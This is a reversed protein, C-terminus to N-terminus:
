FTNGFLSSLSIIISVIEETLRVSALSRESTGRTRRRKMKMDTNAVDKKMLASIPANAGARRWIYYSRLIEAFSIAIRFPEVNITQPTRVIKVEGMIFLNSARETIIRHATPMLMPVVTNM